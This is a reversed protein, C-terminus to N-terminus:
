LNGGQEVLHNCLLWVVSVWNRDELKELSYFTDNVLWLCRLLCLLIDKNCICLAVFQQNEKKLKLSLSLVTACLIRSLNDM